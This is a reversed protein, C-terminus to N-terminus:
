FVQGKQALRKAVRIFRDSANKKPINWRGPIVAEMLKIAYDNAYLVWHKMEYSTSLEEIEKKLIDEYEEHLDAFGDSLTKHRTFEQAMSIFLAIIEDKSKKDLEFTQFVRRASPVSADARKIIRAPTLGKECYYTNM